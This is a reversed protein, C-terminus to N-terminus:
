RAVVDATLMFHDSWVGRVGRDVAAFNRLRVDGIAAIFGVGHQLCQYGADQYQRQVHGNPDGLVICRGERKAVRQGKAIAAEHTRRNGAADLAMRPAHVNLMPVTQRQGLPRFRALPLHITRPGTGTNIRIKVQRLPRKLAVAENYVFGNGLLTPRKNNAFPLMATWGDVPNLIGPWMEVVAVVQAGADEISEYFAGPRLSPKLLAHKDAHHPTNAQAVTMLAPM